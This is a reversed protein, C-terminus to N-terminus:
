GIHEADNGFFDPIALLFISHCFYLILHALLHQAKVVGDVDSFGGVFADRFFFEYSLTGDM